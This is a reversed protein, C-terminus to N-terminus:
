SMDDGSVIKVRDGPHLPEGARLGNLLLFRELPRNTAMSAALSEATDGPRVTHVRLRLPQASRREASSMARITSAAEAFGRDLEPSLERAAFVLRCIERGFRVTFLRLTWGGVRATATAAPRGDITLERVSATEVNEMAGSALYEAPTMEAPVSVIDLRMANAGAPEAGVAGQRLKQLVMGAPATFSFGLRPQLFQRGRVVGENPDAGFLLGAISALYLDRDREGTSAAGRLEADALAARLRDATAPHSVDRSANQHNSSLILSENRGLADLFRV